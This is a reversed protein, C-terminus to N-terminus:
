LRFSIRKRPQTSMSHALRVAESLWLCFLTRTLAAAGVEAGEKRGIFTEDIEVIKGAGGMPPALPGSRMGERIRHAM